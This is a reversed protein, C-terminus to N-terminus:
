GLWLSMTNYYIILLAAESNRFLAMYRKISLRSSALSALSECRIYIVIHAQVYGLLQATEINDIVNYSLQLGLELQRRYTCLAESVELGVPTLNIISSYITCANLIRTTCISDSIDISINYPNSDLVLMIDHKHSSHKLLLLENFIMPQSHVPPYRM